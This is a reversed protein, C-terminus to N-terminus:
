APGSAPVISMEMIKAPVKLKKTRSDNLVLKPVLRLGRITSFVFTTQTQGRQRLALPKAVKSKTRRRERTVVVVAEKAKTEARAVARPMAKASTATARTAKVGM